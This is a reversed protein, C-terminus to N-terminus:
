RYSVGATLAPLHLQERAQGPTAIPRALEGAIRVIRQVLSTNTAPLGRDLWVNDELGTRVHGGTLLCLVNMPLQRVGPACVSWAADSPLMSRMHMVQEVTAPGGDGAGLVFQFRLPDTLLGEDRLRLATRIHGTDFCELEPCVGAGRFALAMERLFDISGDMVFAGFDVTGCDFSALEPALALCAYREAGAARGGCSGCSLNLIADCGAARIGDVLPAFCEPRPSPTGDGERAHLHIVSAGAEWVALADAVVEDAGIPIASNKSNDPASGSLGVQIIAPDIAGREWARNSPVM